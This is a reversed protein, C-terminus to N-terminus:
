LSSHMGAISISYCHIYCYFKSHGWKKLGRSYQNLVSATIPRWHTVSPPASNISMFARILFTAAKWYLVDSDWDIHFRRRIPEQGKDCNSFYKAM